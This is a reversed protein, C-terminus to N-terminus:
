KETKVMKKRFSNKRKEMEKTNEACMTRTQNEKVGKKNKGKEKRNKLSQGDM